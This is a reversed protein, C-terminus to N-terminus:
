LKRQSSRRFSTAISVSDAVLRKLKNNKELLQRLERLENLGLGAYNKKRFHCSQPSIGHKRCVEVVTSGAEAERLM